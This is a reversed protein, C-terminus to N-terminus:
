TWCLRGSDCKEVEGRNWIKSDPESESIKLIQSDSEQEFDAFWWHLRFEAINTIPCHRKYLGVGAVASFIFHRRIRHKLFKQSRIRFFVCFGAPTSERVGHDGRIDLLSGTRPCRRLVVDERHISSSNGPLQPAPGPTKQLLYKMGIEFRLTRVAATNRNKNVFSSCVGAKM